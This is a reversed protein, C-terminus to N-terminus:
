PTQLPALRARLAPKERGNVDLETKPRAQGRLTLYRDYPTRPAGEPFLPKNCGVMGALVLGAGVVQMRAVRGRMSRLM